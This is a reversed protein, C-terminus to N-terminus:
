TLQPLFEWHLSAGPFILRPVVVMNALDHDVLVTGRHIDAWALYTSAGSLDGATGALPGALLGALKALSLFVDRGGPRSRVIRPKIALGINDAECITLRKQASYSGHGAVIPGNDRAVLLDQM